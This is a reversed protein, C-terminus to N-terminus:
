MTMGSKGGGLPSQGPPIRSGSFFLFLFNKKKNEHRSEPESAPIVYIRFVRGTLPSSKDGLKQRFFKSFSFTRPFGEK